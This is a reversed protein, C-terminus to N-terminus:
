IEIINKLLALRTLLGVGGPVPTVYCGQSEMYERDVDGCLKGNSDKNIGVDIILPKNPLDFHFWKEKGIAVVVIDAISCYAKVAAVPTKSHCLTVTANKDTMMRSLPKGVIDSRGIIVVNKGELNIHNFELWDIIGRPTCPNIRNSVFGDVDQWKFTANELIYKVNIKEPVPLQIFIGSTPNSNSTGYIESYLEREGIDEPYKHLIAKIGVEACDKMKGKIYSNSAPNDGIQFINLQHNLNSEKIIKKLNEKELAVYEKCSIM